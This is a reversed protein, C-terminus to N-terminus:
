RYFVRENVYGNYDYVNRRTLTKQDAPVFYTVHVTLTVGDTVRVASFVLDLVSPTPWTAVVNWRDGMKSPHSKGDTQFVDEGSSLQGSPSIWRDTIKVSNAMVAFAIGSEVAGISMMRLDAPIDTKWEGELPSVQSVQVLLLAVAAIIRM